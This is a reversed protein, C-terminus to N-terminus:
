AISTYVAFVFVAALQVLKGLAKSLNDPKTQSLLQFIQEREAILQLESITERKFWCRLLWATDLVGLFGCVVM